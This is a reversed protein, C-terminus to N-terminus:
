SLDYVQMVAVFVEFLLYNQNHGRSSYPFPTVVLSHSCYIFSVPTMRSPKSTM